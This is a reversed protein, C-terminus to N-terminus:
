KGRRRMKENKIKLCEKEQALKKEKASYKLRYPVHYKEWNVFSHLEEFFKVVRRTSFYCTTGLTFITLAIYM